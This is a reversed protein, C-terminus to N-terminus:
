SLPVQSGASGPSWRNKEIISTMVRLCRGLLTPIIEMRKKDSQPLAHYIGRFFSTPPLELSMKNVHNISSALHAILLEEICELLVSFPVELHGYLFSLLRASFLSFLM